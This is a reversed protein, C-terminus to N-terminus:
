RTLKKVIKCAEGIYSLSGFIVIVDEEKAEKLATNVAAEVSECATVDKHYEKLVAALKEAELARPNAPPTITFFKDFVPAMMECEEDYAKDALVGM